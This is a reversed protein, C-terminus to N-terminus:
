RAGAPPSTFIIQRDTPWRLRYGARIEKQAGPAIDLKWAIVGKKEESVPESGPTITSLKEIEVSAQESVPIRDLVTIKVPAQHLNRITAKFERTESKTSGLLGPGEEKHTIPVHKVQIRDDVGFGLKALAGPPTFALHGQGIMQADRTLTVPGPFLPVDDPSTFSAEVYAAPDVAPSTQLLVTPNLASQSLLITKGSADGPVTVRGQVQFSVNYGSASVSAQPEIATKTMRVGSASADSSEQMITAAMNQRAAPAPRPAERAVLPNLDPMTTRRHLQVTSVSLSVDSWDEGTSQSIRARRALTLAAPMKATASTLRADYVPEWRASDVKYSVKFEAPAASATEITIAIDRMPRHPPPYPLISAQRSQDSAEVAAIEADIQQIRAKAARADEAVKALGADIMGWSEEWRPQDARDGRVPAIPVEAYKLIFSRRKEILDAADVYEDRKARLTSLKAAVQPNLNPRLPTPAPADDISLIRIENIGVADVQITGIALEAPLGRLMLLHSGAPVTAKALRTVVAADPHVSVTDIRSSTELVDALSATTSLLMFALTLKLM